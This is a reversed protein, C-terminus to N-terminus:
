ERIHVEGENPSKNVSVEEGQTEEEPLKEEEYGESLDGEDPDDETQKNWLKGGIWSAKQKMLQLEAIEEPDTAQSPIEQCPQNTAVLNEMFTRSVWATTSQKETGEMTGNEKENHIIKKGTKSTSGAGTPNPSFQTTKPNLSRASTNNPVTTREFNNDKVVVLQNNDEDDGDHDELVAFMNTTQIPQNDVADDSAVEERAKVNRQQDNGTVPVIEKGVAGSSQQNGISVQPQQVNGHATMFEKASTANIQTSIGPGQMQQGKAQDVPIIAKGIVM